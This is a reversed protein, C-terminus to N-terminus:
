YGIELTNVTFSSQLIDFVTTGLRVIDSSLHLMCAQHTKRNSSLRLHLGPVNIAFLDDCMNQRHM